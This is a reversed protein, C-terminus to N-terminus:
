ELIHTVSTLSLPLFITFFVQRYFIFLKVMQLSKKDQMWSKLDAARACPRHLFIAM